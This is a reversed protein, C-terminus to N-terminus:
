EHRLAEIPDLRSASLAPYFGFFIGIGASTGFSLLVSEPSIIPPWGAFGAILRCLGIGFLIGFAGGMLSLVVAETLFQALIDRGRAGVAMRIGIERTRETVSVLMINMIGIGGVVLSISAIGGLLMSFIKTSEDAKESAEAQNFAGFGGNDPDEIHYRQNLFDVAVKELKKVHDRSPASLSLYSVTHRRDLKKMLTTYPIIVSNDRSGYGSSGREELVGVVKFPLNKIRIMRGVPDSAGFLEKRVESGLVVVNEASQIERDNFYRGSTPAWSKQLMYVPTSGHISCSWNANGYVLEGFSFIVPASAAVEPLRDVAKWDEVTLEAENGEGGRNRGRRHGPWVFVANTGLSEIKQEVLHRAGSGISLMAIVAAVGIVIGLM